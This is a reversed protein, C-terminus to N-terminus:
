VSFVLFLPYGESITVTHSTLLLGRPTVVCSSRSLWSSGPFRRRGTQSRDSFIGSILSASYTWSFLEDKWTFVTYTLSIQWNKDTRRMKGKDWSPNPVVRKRTATGQVKNGKSWAGVQLNDKFCAHIRGTISIKPNGCYMGLWNLGNWFIGISLTVPWTFM